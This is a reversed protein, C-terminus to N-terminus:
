VDPPDNVKQKKKSNVLGFIAYILGYLISVLGVGTAAEFNNWSTLRYIAFLAFSFGVISIISLVKMNCNKNNGVRRAKRNRGKKLTTELEV